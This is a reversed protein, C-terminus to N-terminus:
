EMTLFFTNIYAPKGQMETVKGDVKAVVSSHHIQWGNKECLQKVVALGMGSGPSLTHRGRFGAQYIDEDDEIRPGWSEISIEVGKRASRQDVLKVIIWAKTNRMVFGHKIANEFLNNVVVLLDGQVVFLKCTKLGFDRRFGTFKTGARPEFQRILTDLTEILNFHEPDTSGYPQRVFCENKEVMFSLETMVEKLNRFVGRRTIDNLIRSLVLYVNLPNEESLSSVARLFTQYDKQETKMTIRGSRSRIEQLSEYIDDITKAAKSGYLDYDRDFADELEQSYQDLLFYLDHKDTSRPESAGALVLDSSSEVMAWLQLLKHSSNHLFFELQQADPSTNGVDSASGVDGETIQTKIPIPPSKARKMFAAVEAIQANSNKQISGKSILITPYPGDDIVERTAKSTLFSSCFVLGKLNKFAEADLGVQSNLLSIFFTGGDERDLDKYKTARIRDDVSGVPVINDIVIYDYKTLAMKDLATGVDEAYDIKARTRDALHVAFQEVLEIEDDLWLIHKQPM